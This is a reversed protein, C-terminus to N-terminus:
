RLTSGRDGLQKIHLLDPQVARLAREARRLVWVQRPDGRHQVVARVELGEVDAVDRPVRGAEEAGDRVVEQEAAAPRGQARERERVEPARRMRTEVRSRGEQSRMHAQFDEVEVDGEARTRVVM